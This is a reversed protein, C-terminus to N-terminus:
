LQQYEISPYGKEGKENYFGLFRLKYYYGETDRIIYNLNMRVTYSGTDFNYFKWDYGIRDQQNSLSLNSISSFTINEFLETSDQAVIVQNPNLLVGTVLYPYPNGLSTFLLTTYQTFLLDWNSEPPESVVDSGADFTFLVNNVLHNKVISYSKINSGDFNAVRFYFIDMSISDIVLQRMGRPNGLEDLGRNIAYIHGNSVTDGGIVKFWIGLATSDAKGNSNDYRWTTGTTDAPHGIEL